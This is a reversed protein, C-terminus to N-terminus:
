FADPPLNRIARGAPGDMDKYMNSMYSQHDRVIVAGDIGCSIDDDTYPRGDLGPSLVVQDERIYELRAGWADLPRGLTDTDFIRAVHPSAALTKLDPAYGDEAAQHQLLGRGMEKVIE